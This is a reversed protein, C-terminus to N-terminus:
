TTNKDLRALAWVLAAVIGIGLLMAVFGGGRVMGFRMLALASAAM